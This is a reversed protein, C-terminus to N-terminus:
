GSPWVQKGNGYKLLSKFHLHMIWSQAQMISVFFTRITISSAFAFQHFNHTLLAKLRDVRPLEDVANETFYIASKALSFTIISSVDKYQNEPEAMEVCITVRIRRLQCCREDKAESEHIDERALQFQKLDFEVAYNSENLNEDAFM